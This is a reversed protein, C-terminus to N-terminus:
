RPVLAEDLKNGVRKVSDADLPGPENILKALTRPPTIWVSLHQYPKNALMRPLSALSWDGDIFVLAPHIPVSRDGIVQAVPIVLGYISETESTRDRGGVYLRTNVSMMSEAKYEIKGKWNKSDIIWVGSPAIVIHDINSKTGPVRRDTLIIADKNVHKHLSQDMLYEGAAGKIWKPDRRAQAERLAASGGVPDPRMSSSPGVESTESDNQPPGCMACRVKKIEANHWGVARVDIKAGCSDCAGYRLAKSDWAMDESYLSPRKAISPIVQKVRLDRRQM